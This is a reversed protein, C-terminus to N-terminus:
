DSDSDSNPYQDSDLNPDSDTDPDSDLDLDPDSDSDPESDSDSDTDTELVSSSKMKPLTPLIAELDDVFEDYLDKLFTPHNLPITRNMYMFREVNLWKKFVGNEIKEIPFLSDIAKGIREQTKPQFYEGDRFISFIPHRDYGGKSCLSIWSLLIAWIESLISVRFVNLGKQSNWPDRYCPTYIMNSSSCWWNKPIPNVVAIGFDALTPLSGCRILINDPKIDAHFVGLNNCNMTIQVIKLLQSFIKDNTLNRFRKGSIPGAPYYPMTYASLMRGLIMIEFAELPQIVGNIESIRNMIELEHRMDKKARLDSVGDVSFVKLAFYKGTENSEIKFVNSFSGSGIYSITSYEGFLDKASTKIKLDSVLITTYSHRIKDYKHGVYIHFSVGLHRFRVIQNGSYHNPVHEVELITTMVFKVLDQWSCVVNQVLCFEEVIGQLIDFFSLEERCDTLSNFFNLIEERRINDRAHLSLFKKLLRFDKQSFNPPLSRTKHM